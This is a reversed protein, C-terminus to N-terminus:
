FVDNMVIVSLGNKVKYAEIELYQINIQHITFSHDWVLLGKFNSNYDDYVIRLTQQQIRSIKNNFSRSHCMWILPCYNLEATIFLNLLFKQKGINLYKAKRPLASVKQNAKFCLLM